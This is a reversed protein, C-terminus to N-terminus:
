DYPRLPSGIGYCLLEQGRVTVVSEPLYADCGALNGPELQVPLLLVAERTVGAGIQQVGVLTAEGETVEPM